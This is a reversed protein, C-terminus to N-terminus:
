KYFEAYLQKRKDNIFIKQLVAVSGAIVFAIAINKKIQQQLLGRLQPKVAKGVAGSM